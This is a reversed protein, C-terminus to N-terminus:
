QVTVLIPTSHQIAGSTATVTVTYNQPPPGGSSGGGCAEQLIAAVMLLLCLAWMKRRKKDFAAALVCGMLGMALWTAYLRGAREFPPPSLVAALAPASVTLM